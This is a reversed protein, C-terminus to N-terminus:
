DILRAIRCPTPNPTPTPTPCPGFPAIDGNAARNGIAAAASAAIHKTSVGPLIRGFSYTADCSVTVVITNADLPRNLRAGILPPDVTPGGDCLPSIRSANAIAINHAVTTADGTSCGDAGSPCVNPYWAGALAAADAAAQLQRQIVLFMGTDVVMALAGVMAVLAMAAFPLTQARLRTKLGRRM